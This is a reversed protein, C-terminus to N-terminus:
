DTYVRAAMVETGRRDCKIEVDHTGRRGTPVLVTLVYRGELASVMRSLAVDPHLHTKVYFGGTDEAVWELGVELSHYDADTLDLSFVTVRGEVLARRAPEYDQEPRVGARGCLRGLGWGFLVLTKSGPLDRLARALVFLGTEPLAADRAAEYDFRSAISAGPGPVPPPPEGLLSTPLIAKELAARDATFDLHLKLRSDFSVVAVRDRENFTDLLDRAKPSMRMLGALRSRELDCQFFYVILRGPPASVIGASHATAPDPGDAYPRDGPVWEVAEIAADRGDLSVRFDGTGLGPVPRGSRDVVRVDLLLRRVEVQGQFREEQAPAGSALLSLMALTLGVVKM